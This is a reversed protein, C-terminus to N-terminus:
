KYKKYQAWGEAEERVTLANTGWATALLAKFGRLSHLQDPPKM